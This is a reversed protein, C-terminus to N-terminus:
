AEWRLATAPDVRAARSAPIYSALLATAALGGSVAVYTLPDMPSVGFLLASMVRTLGASAALGASIGTVALWLGQRLFLGTVDRAAAGLAIRIGIERTRQTAVYSIVGYIGVVGLLLAVSAAIALMVLMFSTQAMSESRLQALTRVRAVPLNANVSWVAQQIEKLLTPSGARETRVAYGMTRQVMLPQDWFEKMMMPWYMIAPAPKAVGDDRADAVVGVITRWPNKPNQRIRRGLAADVSKWYERAFNETVVVVPAQTYVDPWSITRGAILRNGMAEFYGEGIWKFRRLPPMRGGPGPFDEVFIPDNSDNGDMTISSSLGVGKVGPIQEIRRVIQEHTRAAQEMDPVLSEPISVRLTLVQEPQTFGPDVRRMAQFTRMMLGSGVLLVVALAVEAVVLVNRARHRSRGDSSARGGEKLSSALQPSTFKLVPLLGFLLGAVLSVSATFALVVPDIRIEDVRPLGEPAVAVLLRIGAQALIVGLAGGAFALALSESLLEWSIRARSAGLAAHIALEQQRGEARVLFLNAVNACAILLVIGVTGLLVWLTRGIDGIVDASLPRVNPGLRVEDFMQRTFGNPLPFREVVLPLMRAVDANAQALTTESKLRALGQYSFNGIFVKARDIQFPLVIQPASNLFKFSAPLVGIIERPTGDVILSRGLVSPDSAMKRQWYGHTLLVRGPAGPKDDANTFIRGLVAQVRLVPLTGDTVLLAQIREPEGTGTVSVSTNDWLGIDEFVRGEERYTFYTAPSQNLLPINMGPASHWVGVLRDADPYPLPKLLVGNVVSFIATNAGIGLGLTLVAVVSFLPARFLRRVTRGLRSRIFSM